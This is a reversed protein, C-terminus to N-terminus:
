PVFGLFEQDIPVVFKEFVDIRSSSRGALYDTLKARDRFIGALIDVLRIELKKIVLFLLQEMDPVIDSEIFNVTSTIIEDRRFRIGDAKHRYKLSVNGLLM